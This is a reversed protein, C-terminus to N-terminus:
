NFRWVELVFVTQDSHRVRFIVGLPAELLIRRGRPRSEGQSDPDSSLLTDIKNAAATVARRDSAAVWIAALQGEALRTWIVTYKM